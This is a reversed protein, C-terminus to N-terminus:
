FFKQNFWFIVQLLEIFLVDISHNQKAHTEEHWFVEQPIERQEFKQKNLFIYKFFTHPTILDSLLVHVFHNSKLKPNRRIKFIIHSLNMLFKVGFLLVGAAYISWLIIPLYNTEQPQPIQETYYVVSEISSNLTPLPTVDIYQTFTVLPIVFAIILAGLLYYRKFVHMNERELFFSYFAMFIALCAASKLLYILM